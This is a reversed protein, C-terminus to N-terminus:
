QNEKKNKFIKLSICKKEGKENIEFTVFIPFVKDRKSALQPYKPFLSRWFDMPLSTTKYGKKM